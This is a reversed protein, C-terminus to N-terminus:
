VLGPPYLKEMLFLVSEKQACYRADNGIHLQKKNMNKGVFFGPSEHGPKKFIM